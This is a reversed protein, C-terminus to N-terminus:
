YPLIPTNEATLPVQSVTLGAVNVGTLVLSYVRNPRVIATNILYVLETPSSGPQWSVQEVFSTHDNLRAQLEPSGIEYQTVIGASDALGVQGAGNIAMLVLPLAV